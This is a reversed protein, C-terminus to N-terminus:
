FPGVIGELSPLFSNERVGVVESTIPHAVVNAGIIANNAGRGEIIRGDLNNGADVEIPSVEGSINGDLNTEEVIGGDKM